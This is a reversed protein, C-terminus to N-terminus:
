STEKWWREVIGASDPDDPNVRTVHQPPLQHRFWTRQRKAYQRTEIIIRERAASLDTYGKVVDQMARYGSAKWAPADYPVTADLLRAEELWGADIMAATRTEIRPALGLGPDVVLYSAAFNATQANRQHLDSIRHGTLIAVELARLIQVRGLRARQPDLANCWRRLEETPKGAFYQELCNRAKGDIHPATFLPEFLARIYFGTGGVIISNENRELLNTALEAWQSASYRETPDCIDIGEHSIAKRESWDPKATGIDFGRYIQRSDASIITAGHELALKAAIASKGAATPGCIVRV